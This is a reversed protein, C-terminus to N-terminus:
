LFKKRLENRKIKGAETVPLSDVFHIERPYQHKALKNRVLQKLEEELEKGHKIGDRLTVFAVILEGRLEDPKGVVGCEKVSPHSCIMDEVEKPGIRFGSSSIVDDNRGEYYYMYQSDIRARDGSLSLLVSPDNASSVIRENTKKESKFYGKFFNCPSHTMNVAIQAISDSSPRDIINNNEDVLVMKLGPLATGMSGDPVHQTFTPHHHDCIMMGHETQGYHEHIKLGWINNFYKLAPQNLAEGASSLKKLTKIRYQKALHEGSAMISRYMTPAGTLNTVGHENIVKFVNEPKFPVSLFMTTIGAVLTGCINYYMGYAWGPDAVNWFVDDPEVHLSYTMYTDFANLAYVPVAVGKPHGTTGSTYILIMNDDAHYIENLIEKPPAFSYMENFNYEKAKKDQVIKDNTVTIITVTPDNIIDPISDLKYRNAKDTIIFKTGSNLLRHKIAESAFATFLPLYCGGVRWIGVASAFLEISKSLLVAVHDGKQLGHCKLFQAINASLNRLENFTIEKYVDLIKADPNTSSIYKLAVKSPDHRDCLLDGLRVPKDKSVIFVRNPPTPKTYYRAICKNLLRTTNKLTRQIKM